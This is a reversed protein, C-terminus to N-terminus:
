QPISPAKHYFELRFPHSYVNIDFYLTTSGEQPNKMPKGHMFGPISFGKKEFIQQLRDISAEQKVRFAVHAGVGSRIWKQTTEPHEEPIFLEVGIPQQKLNKGWAKVIQTSVENKGVLTGLEKALVHSPFTKHNEPFGSLTLLWDLHQVKMHPLLIFAMHEVGEIEEVIEKIASTPLQPLLAKLAEAHTSELFDRIHFLTDQLQCAVSNESCSKPCIFDFLSLGAKYNPSKSVFEVLTAVEKGNLLFKAVRGFYPKVLLHELEPYELGDIFEEIEIQGEHEELFHAHDFDFSSGNKLDVRIQSHAIPAYHLTDTHLDWTQTREFFHDTKKESLIHTQPRMQYVKELTQSLLEKEGLLKCFWEDFVCEM